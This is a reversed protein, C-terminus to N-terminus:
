PKLKSLQKDVFEQAETLSHGVRGVTFSLDNSDPHPGSFVRMFGQKAVKDYAAFGRMDTRWSCEWGGDNIFIPGWLSGQDSPARYEAGCLRCFHGPDGSPLGSVM